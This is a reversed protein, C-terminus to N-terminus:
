LHPISPHHRNPPLRETCFPAFFAGPNVPQRREARAGSLILSADSSDAWIAPQGVETDISTVPEPVTLKDGGVSSTDRLLGRSPWSVHLHLIGAGIRDYVTSEVGYYTGM